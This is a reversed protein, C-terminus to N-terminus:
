LCNPSALLPRIPRVKKCHLRDAEWRGVWPLSVVGILLDPVLNRHRCIGPWNDNAPHAPHLGKPSKSERSYCSTAARPSGEDLEHHLFRPVFASATSDGATKSSCACARGCLAFAEQCRSRTSIGPQVRPRRAWLSALGYHEVWDLDTEAQSIASADILFVTRTTLRPELPPLTFFTEQFTIQTQDPRNVRPLSASVREQAQGSGGARTEQPRVTRGV